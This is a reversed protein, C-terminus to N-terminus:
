FCPYKRRDQGVYVAAGKACANNSPGDYYAFTGPLPGPGYNHNYSIDYPLGHLRHHPRAQATGSMVALAAVVAIATVIPNFKEQLLQVAAGVGLILGALVLNLLFTSARRMERATHERALALETDIRNTM